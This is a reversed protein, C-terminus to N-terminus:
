NTLRKSAVEGEIAGTILGLAIFLFGLPLDV